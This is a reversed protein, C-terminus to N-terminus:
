HPRHHPPYLRPPDDIRARVRRHILSLTLRLQGICHIRLRHSHHRLLRAQEPSSHKIKRRVIHEISRLLTRVRLHILGRRRTDIPRRLKRALPRQLLAARRIRDKPRAPHIPRCSLIKHQRHQPQRALALHQPHHSILM